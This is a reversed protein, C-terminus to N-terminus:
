SLQRMAEQLLQVVREPALDPRVSIPPGFRVSLQARPALINFDSHENGALWVPVVSAQTQVALLGVGAEIQMGGSEPDPDGEPFIIPNFGQDILRCTDFLGQRTEEAHSILAYPFVLPVLLYFALAVFLRRALPTGRPPALYEHFVTSAGIFMLHARLRPPLSGYVTFIDSGHEHHGCALIFPPRLGKLHEVGAVTLCARRSLWASIVPPALLRRALKAAPSGVWTPPRPSKGHAAVSGPQVVMQGLDAVTAGESVHADRLLLQNEREIVTLLEVVDLSSLGLDQLLTSRDTALRESPTGTIYRALLQVRRRRDPESRIDALVVPEAPPPNPGGAQDHLQEIRAAVVDRQVKLLSARPFDEDPWVSWGHIREHMQLKLNAQHIISAPEAGPQLLLVAHVEAVGRRELGVVLSDRVGPVQALVEEVTNPYVNFGEGTVIIDKKRGMFYLRNRGDRRALDGTHLYGDAFTRATAQEDRFYGPSVNAGRVLIEGDPALKLRHGRLPKGIAGFRGTLPANISIIATTETLGYGQVIYYGAERWFREDAPPLAAGGVLVVWFSYGLVAHTRRFLFDRRQVFYSMSRVRQGVTSRGYPLRELSRTLQQLARPVTSLLTVRNHKITRTVHAPDSSTTYIVSLGLALPICAGLLLGQSHSLPALVLMRVPVRRTLWRWSTFHDVQAALNGHTLVVGKPTSTTGSTFLIVAPDDGAVGARVVDQASVRGAALFISQTPLGITSADQEPGHVLLVAEVTAAIQRVYDASAGADVPVVVVGCLAAGLLFSLWEPCNPSWLLIRQGRRVGMAQLCAAVRWSEDYLQRYSWWRLGYERRLGVARREGYAPLQAVLSQVTRVRM